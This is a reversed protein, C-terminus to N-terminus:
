VYYANAFNKPVVIFNNDPTNTQNLAKCLSPAQFLGLTLATFLFILGLGFCSSRRNATMKLSADPF